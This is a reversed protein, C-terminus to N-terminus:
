SRSLDSEVGTNGTPRYDELAMAMDEVAKQLRRRRIRNQVEDHLYPEAYWALKGDICDIGSVGHPSLSIFQAMESYAPGSFYHDLFLEDNGWVLFDRWIRYGAPQEFAAGRPRTWENGAYRRRLIFRVAEKGEIHAEASLFAPMDEYFKHVPRTSGLFVSPPIPHGTAIFVKPKRPREQIPLDPDEGSLEAKMQQDYYDSITADTKDWSAEIGRLIQRQRFQYSGYGIAAVVMGVLIGALVVVLWLSPDQELRYQWHELTEWLKGMM